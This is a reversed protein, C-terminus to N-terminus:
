FKLIRDKKLCNSSSHETFTSKAYQWVLCPPQCQAKQLSTPPTARPTRGLLLVSNHFCLLSFSQHLPLFSCSCCLYTPFAPVRSSAKSSTLSTSSSCWQLFIQNTALPLVPILGAVPFPMGMINRASHKVLNHQFCESGRIQSM